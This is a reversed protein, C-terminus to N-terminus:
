DSDADEQEAPSHAAAADSPTGSPVTFPARRILSIQGRRSLLSLNSAAAGIRARAIKNPEQGPRRSIDLSYETAFMASTALEIEADLHDDVGVQIEGTTTVLRQHAGRPATGLSAQISGGGTEARIVGSIGRLAIDGATSKVDVNGHVGRVDASGRDTRVSLAHGEPLLLSLDVRQGDAATGKGPMEAAIQYSGDELLKSEIKIHMGAAPEQLVAHTEALHGFGGFRVSVNGYPNFIAVAQGVKLPQSYDTRTTVIETAKSQGTPDSTQAMASAFSGALLVM